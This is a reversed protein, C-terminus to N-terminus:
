SDPQLELVRENELHVDNEATLEDLKQLLTENEAQIRKNKEESLSRHGEAIALSSKLEDIQGQLM